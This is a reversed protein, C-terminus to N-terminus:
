AIPVGQATEGPAPAIKINPHFVELSLQVQQLFPLDSRDHLFRLRYHGRDFGSGFFQLVEEGVETPQCPHLGSRQVGMRGGLPTGNIELADQM